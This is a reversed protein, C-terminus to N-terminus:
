NADTDNNSISELQDLLQANNDLTQLDNVVAADAQPTAPHTEFGTLDLYVGGGVLLVVTLAMAALPKVHLQPGFAFRARLRELWSAQPTARLEALRVRFRTMFHPNPEPTKWTDLLAITSRLEELEARCSECEAVHGKVEASVSDPALLVDAVKGDMGSCKKTM